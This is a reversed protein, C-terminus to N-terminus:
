AENHVIRSINYLANSIKPFLNKFPRSDLSYWIEFVSFGFNMSGLFSAEKRRM